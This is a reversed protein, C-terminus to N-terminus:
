KKRFIEIEQIKEGPSFHFFRGKPLNIIKEPPLFIFDSIVRLDNKEHLQGVFVHLSQALISKNLQGPRQTICVLSIGHHRGIFLLNKLYNPLFHPSSFLQIEDIVVQLNKFHFALRLVENFVTEINESDPDFRFILRFKKQNEKKLNILKEALANFSTIIEGDTWDRVPDLM